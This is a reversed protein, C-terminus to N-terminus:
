SYFQQVIPVADPGSSANGSQPDSDVRIESICFYFEIKGVDPEPPFSTNVVCRSGRTSSLVAALLCVHDRVRWVHAPHSLSQSKFKFVLLRFNWVVRKIHSYLGMILSLKAGFYFCATLNLIGSKQVENLFVTISTNRIYVHFIKTSQQNFINLTKSTNPWIYNWGNKKSKLTIIPFSLNCIHSATILEPTLGFEKARYRM